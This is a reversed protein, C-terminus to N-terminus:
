KALNEIKVLARALDIRTLAPNSNFSSGDLEILGSDIAVAVYPRSNTPSSVADTITPSLVALSLHNQLNSAKVFAVASILKSAIQHPNFNSGNTADFILNGNPNNQVSEVTNRTFRSLKAIVLEGKDVLLPNSYIKCFFLRDKHVSARSKEKKNLNKFSLNCFSDIIM